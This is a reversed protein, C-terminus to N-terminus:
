SSVKKIGKWNDKMTTEGENLLDQLARSRNNLTIEIENLKETDRLFATNFTQFATEGITWHKKPKLKIKTVVPYHDSAIDAGGQTRVDEMSRTFTKSICIHDIQDETTHDPPVWTVKHMRKYPFITGGIVLKNFVCLNAFREGNENREGLGHRGIIDEYGNNDMGVKANLEGLLITLGKRPYKVTISPM